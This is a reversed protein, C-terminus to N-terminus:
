RLKMVLKNLKKEHWDCVYFPSIDLFWYFIPFLFIAILIGLFLVPFIMTIQIRVWVKNLYDKM